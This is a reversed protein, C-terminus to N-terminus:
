GSALKPKLFVSPGYPALLWRGQEWETSPNGDSDVRVWRLETRYRSGNVTLEVDTKAVAAAVHRVLRLEWESLVYPSYLDKAEVAAQSPTSPHSSLHLFHSALRAWQQKQWQEIFAHFTTVVGLKEAAEDDPQYEHPRWADLRARLDRNRNMQNLLDTLSPPPEAPQSLRELSVAWDIIAFLRNWAKTAVVENDFNITAGHMIGNRYLEKVEEDIRKTFPKRFSRHAHSLGLHHGVTSDWAVLEDPSRAHLGKRNAKDLDNVFGDMVSLLVLVTSYYREARYDELAKRLLALRPRMDEFRRLRLFQFDLRKEEKYYDILRAEAIEPDDTAIVQEMAPLSLEETFVWNRPGLLRYFGDVVETTDWHKRELRELTKRLEPNLLPGLLKLAAIEHEREQFSPLDRASGYSTVPPTDSM